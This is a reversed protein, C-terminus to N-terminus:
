GDASGCCTDAIPASAIGVARGNAGLSGLPFGFGGIEEVPGGKVM